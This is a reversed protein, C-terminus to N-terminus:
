FFKDPDQIFFDRLQILIKGLNNEGVGNETVGWYQDGWNNTEELECGKTMILMEKLKPNNVFKQRVLEQMIYYKKKDWRRKNLPALQGLRKSDGVSVGEFIYREEKIYKSAQYGHEVSPYYIEDLCVGNELVYFNSLFRFENVFGGIFGDKHIAYYPVRSENEEIKKMKYDWPCNICSNKCCKGRSLLFERSLPEYM